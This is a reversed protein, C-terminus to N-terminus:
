AIAHAADALRTWSSRAGCEGITELYGLIPAAEPTPRLAVMMKLSAVCALRALAINDTELLEDINASSASRADPIEADCRPALSTVTPRTTIGRRRGGPPARALDGADTALGRPL